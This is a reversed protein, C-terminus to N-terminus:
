LPEGRTEVLNTDMEPPHTPPRLPGRVISFYLPGRYVVSFYKNTSYVTVVFGHAHVCALIFLEIPFSRLVLITSKTSM